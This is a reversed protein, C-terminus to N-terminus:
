EQDGEPPKQLDAQAQKLDRIVLEFPHEGSSHEEQVQRPVRNRLLTLLQESTLTKFWGLVGEAGGREEITDRLARLYETSDSNRSGKPRGPGGEWGPKFQGGNKAM